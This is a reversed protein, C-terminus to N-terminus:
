GNSAEMKQWLQRHKEAAQKWDPNDTLQIFREIDALAESQQGLEYRAVARNFYPAPTHPDLAICQEFDTFAEAFAGQSFRLAGRNFWAAVLTPQLEIARDLDAMAEANRSFGRYVQARNVRAGADAPDLNIAGELDRLAEALRQQQLYLSGRVALPQAQLPHQQQAVTLQDIAEQQRGEAWHELAVQVMKDASLGLHPDYSGHPGAPKKYGRGEEALSLVPNVAMTIWGLLLLTKVLKRM